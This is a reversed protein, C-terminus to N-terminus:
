TQDAPHHPAEDIQLVRQHPQRSRDVPAEQFLLKARDIWEAINTM